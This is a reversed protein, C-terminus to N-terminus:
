PCISSMGAPEEWEGSPVHRHDVLRTSGESWGRRATLRPPGGACIRLRNHGDLLILKGNNKWVSLPERCGDRLINERLQEFEKPHLPPILASLEFDIILEPTM